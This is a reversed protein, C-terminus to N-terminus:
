SISRMRLWVGYPKLTASLRNPTFRMSISSRMKRRRTNGANRQTRGPRAEQERRPIASMITRQKHVLCRQRPTASFLEGVAALLGDHGDTVLLDSAMGITTYHRRMVCQQVVKPIADNGLREFIITKTHCLSLCAVNTQIM